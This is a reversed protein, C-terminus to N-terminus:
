PNLANVTRRGGNRRSLVRKAWYNLKLFRRGMQGHAPCNSPRSQMTQPSQCGNSPRRVETAISMQKVSNVPTHPCSIQMSSQFRSQILWWGVGSEYACISIWANMSIPKISRFNSASTRHRLPSLVKRNVLQGAYGEDLPQRSQCLFHIPGAMYHEGDRNGIVSIEFAIGTALPEFKPWQCRRTQRGDSQNCGILSSIHGLLHARWGHAHKSLLSDSVSSSNGPL